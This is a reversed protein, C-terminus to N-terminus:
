KQASGVTSDASSCDWSAVDERTLDLRTAGTVAPVKSDHIPKHIWEWVARGDPKVEVVRGARSESLLMNENELEQWKGQVYTYFPESHRTPFRVVSSDTHSQVEVIRSGGLMKGRQTPDTNNDFVGIWGDGIFDPDHQHHFPRSTYWKVESSEPSFVFVLSPHRLSVLLDGAEFLPYEDAMSSTLPEVDNLHVPDRKVEEDRPYPGLKKVIYRELGNKYLIDLVTIRTLVEGDESVQLIQDLWVPNKIGPFGNPHNSTKIRPKESVGPTWFSGDEDRAISHHNGEMLTWIVNGCADIRAMGIYELNVLLDGNPLLYTGHVGVRSPEKKTRGDGGFVEKKDIRWKHIVRGQEEILRVEPNWGDAKKWSSAILTLGPQMEEPRVRRVGKREYVQPGSKFPADYFLSQAEHWGQEALSTPFWGWQNAAIGYAVGLVAVSLMFWVKALTFYSMM